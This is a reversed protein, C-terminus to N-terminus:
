ACDRNTSCSCCRFCTTIMFIFINFNKGENKNFDHMMDTNFDGNQRVMEMDGANTLGIVSHTEVQNTLGGFPCELANNNAFLGLGAKNEEESVDNWSCLADNSSSHKFTSKKEDRFERLLTDAIITGMEDMVNDIEINRPDAPHFLENKVVM